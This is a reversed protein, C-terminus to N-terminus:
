IFHFWDIWTQLVVTWGNTCFLTQRHHHLPFVLEHICTAAPNIQHFLKKVTLRATTCIHIMHLFSSLCRDWCAKLARNVCCALTARPSGCHLYHSVRATIDHMTWFHMKKLNTQIRYFQLCSRFSRYASFYNHGYKEYICKSCCTM